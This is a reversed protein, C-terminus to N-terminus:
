IQGIFNLNFFFIFFFQTCYVKQLFLQNNVTKQYQNTLKIFM